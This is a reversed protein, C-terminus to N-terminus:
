PVVHCKWGLSQSFLSIWLCQINLDCRDAEPQVSVHLVVLVSSFLEVLDGSLLCQPTIVTLLSELADHMLMISQPPVHYKSTAGSWVELMSEELDLRRPIQRTCEVVSQAYESHAAMLSKLSLLNGGDSGLEACVIRSQIPSFSRRKASQLTKLTYDIASHEVSTKRTMANWRERGKGKSNAAFGFQELLPQPYSSLFHRESHFLLSQMAASMPEPFTTDGHERLLKPM